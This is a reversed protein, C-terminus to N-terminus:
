CGGGSKISPAARRVIVNKKETQVPVSEKQRYFHQKAAMRFAYTNFVELPATEIPAVPQVISAFWNNVGGELVFVDSIDLRRCVLWAQDSLAGSNSYLVKDLGPQQLYGLSTETLLSDVPINIAGPISFMAFQDQPRVDILLLGPDHQIIRDTVEDIDLFRSPDNYEVTLTKLDVQKAPRNDDMFLIGIALAAAISILIIYTKNM